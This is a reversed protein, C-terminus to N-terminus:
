VAAPVWAPQQAERERSNLLSATPIKKLWCAYYASLKGYSNDAIAVDRGTLLGLLAMHLRNTVVTKHPALTRIAKRILHERYVRWFPHIEHHPLLDRHRQHLRYLVGFAVRDFSNLIDLWDIGAQSNTAEYAFACEEKDTRLFLLASREGNPQRHRAMEDWLFHAMDPFLYVPNPFRSRFFDYSTQDRLCVHLDPHASFVKVCDAVKSQSEFRITQPLLVIRHRPCQAIVRERFQQHLDYLDGFNGGGQLVITAEPPIAALQEMGCDYASRTMAVRYDFARFFAETGKEILLDGINLYVPYDLFVIPNQRPILEAIQGVKDRLGTMEANLGTM